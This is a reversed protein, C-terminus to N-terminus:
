QLRRERRVRKLDSGTPFFYRALNHYYQKDAFKYLSYVLKPYPEREIVKNKSIQQVDESTIGFICLDSMLHLNVPQTPKFTSIEPQRINLRSEFVQEHVMPQDNVSTHNGFFQIEGLRDSLSNDEILSKIQSKPLSMQFKKEYNQM